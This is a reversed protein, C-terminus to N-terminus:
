SLPATAQEVWSRVEDPLLPAVQARVRAHYGNLWDLEEATLLAPDILRRDIPALTLTEFGLMTREDGDCPCSTVMVLNEIRIGYAGSKYYGPENSCIMGPELAIDSASKSIRQPGEHVGLFAGVGHGTGHDYDLGAQWLPLRALVDLQSGTTGKPFRARALAIHGKLVLTFRTREEAGVAGIAVTRTVDTTGDPYQGGSDILFLEGERTTRNSAETVRYHVIAGHPGSGTIAPFSLERLEGTQQRFALLQTDATHEDVGPAHADLWHLFRCLAAGDRLHAARTGAAEVPNKRAKPLACPDPKEVLTAGAAELADFIACVCSAPDVQVVQGQLAELAAVFASRDEIDVEEGLHDILRLTVKALETFLRARGDAFLIVFARAVPTHAVDEGRINLLWAISDLAAIVVADTKADALTAAIAHRKEASSQGTYVAPHVEIPALSPAPQDPWIFDIPNDVVRALSASRRGLAEGAAKAWSRTALWPDFGIRGGEPANEGLWRAVSSDPVDVYDFSDGDVQDRVQLTYRGDTFMAARDALIVASGASGTFGTLWALRQAYSGVYESMHEDTLPVVFGDLGRVALIGRLAALRQKFDSM